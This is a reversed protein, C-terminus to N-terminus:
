IEMEESDITLDTMKMMHFNLTKLERLINELLEEANWDSVIARDQGGDEITPINSYVIM